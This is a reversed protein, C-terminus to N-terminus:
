IDWVLARLQSLKHSLDLDVGVCSLEELGDLCVGGDGERAGHCGLGTGFCHVNALLKNILGKARYGIKTDSIIIILTNYGYEMCHHIQRTSM